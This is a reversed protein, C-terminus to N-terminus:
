KVIKTVICEKGVIVMNTVERIGLKIIYLGFLTPYPQASFANSLIWCEKRIFVSLLSPLSPIKRLKVFSMCSFGAGLTGM